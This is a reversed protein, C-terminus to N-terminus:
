GIKQKIEQIEKLITKLLQADTMKTNSFGSLETQIEDIEKKAQRDVLYDSEARKRDVESQRNQSMMILPATYAAQFSLVLNLLIFSPPDWVFGLIGTYNAWIWFILITSQTLIFGWSGVTKAVSDAIKQGFSINNKNLGRLKTTENKM